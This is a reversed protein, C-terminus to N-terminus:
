FFLSPFLIIFALLTKIFCLFMIIFGSIKEFIPNSKLNELDSKVDAGSFIKPVIKMIGSITDAVLSSIKSPIESIDINISLKEDLYEKIAETDSLISDLIPKLVTEIVTSLIDTIFGKFDTIIKTVLKPVETVINKLADTLLKVFATVLGVIIKIPLLIFETLKSVYESGTKIMELILEQTEASLAKFGKDISVSFGPLIFSLDLVLPLKLKESIPKILENVIFEIPNELFGKIDAIFAAIKDLFVPPNALYETIIKKLEVIPKFMTVFGQEIISIFVDIINGLGPLDVSPIELDVGNTKMCKSMDDVITQIAATSLLEGM